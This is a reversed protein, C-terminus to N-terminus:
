ALFCMFGVGFPTHPFWTGEYGRLHGGNLTGGMSM